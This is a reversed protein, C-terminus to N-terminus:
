ADPSPNGGRLYLLDRTEHGLRNGRREFRTAPRYDPRVELPQPGDPTWVPFLSAAVAQMHEAYEEWDTALHLSGGLRVARALLHLFAPQILRRKHHRKKPWPDPFFIQVRDLGAAPINEKLITVADATIVRLNEIGQQTAVQLLHGVGPRHVEIGLFDREPQTAAQEALSEGNGFGVELTLPAQRGFVSAFDLVRGPEPDLGLREWHVSLARQQASTMRGERRVFSRIRRAGVGSPLADQLREGMAAAM